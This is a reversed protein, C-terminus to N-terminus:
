FNVLLFFNVESLNLNTIQIKFGVSKISLFNERKLFFFFNLFDNRKSSKKKGISDKLLTKKFFNLKM